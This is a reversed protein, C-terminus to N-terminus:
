SDKFFDRIEKLSTYKSVNTKRWKNTSENLWNESELVGVLMQCFVEAFNTEGKSKCLVIIERSFNEKGKEEVLRSVEKSSGYYGKWDSEFTTRRTAKGKKRSFNFYKRGIYKKGNTNDTILYVFGAYGKLEKPIFPEGRYVWPNQLYEDVTEEIKPESKNTATILNKKM